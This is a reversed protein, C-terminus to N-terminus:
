DSSERASLVPHVGEAERKEREECRGEHQVQQGRAGGGGVDLRRDRVVLEGEVISGVFDCVKEAVIEAFDYLTADQGSSEAQAREGVRAHVRAGRLAGLVRAAAAVLAALLAAAALLVASEHAALAVLQAAGRALVQMWVGAGLVEKSGRVLADALHAGASPGASRAEGQAAGPLCTLGTSCQAIPTHPFLVLLSAPLLSSSNPVHLPAMPQACAVADDLPFGLPAHLDLPSYCPLHCHLCAAARSVSAVNSLLSSSAPPLSPRMPTHSCPRMPTALGPPHRYHLPAASVLVSPAAATRLLMCDWLHGWKGLCSDFTGERYYQTTQYVPAAGHWAWPSFSASRPFPPPAPCLMPSLSCIDCAAIVARTCHHRPMSAHEECGHRLLLASVTAAPRECYCFWIADIHKICSERPAAAGSADARVAAADWAAGAASSQDAIADGAGQSGGAEARDPGASGATSQSADAM